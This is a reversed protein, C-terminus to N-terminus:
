YSINAKLRIRGKPMNIKPLPLDKARIPTKNIKVIVNAQCVIELRLLREFQVKSPFHGGSTKNFNRWMSVTQPQVGCLRAFEDRDLKLREQLSLVWSFFEVFRPDSKFLERQERKRARQRSYTDAFQDNAGKRRNDYYKRQRLLKRISYFRSVLQTIQFQAM